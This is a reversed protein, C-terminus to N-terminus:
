GSYLCYKEFLLATVKRNANKLSLTANKDLIVLTLKKNDVHEERYIYLMYKQIM